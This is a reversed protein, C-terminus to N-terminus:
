GGVVQEREVASWVGDVRAIVPDRMQYVAEFDERCSRWVFKERGDVMMASTGNGNSRMVSASQKAVNPTDKTMSLVSPITACPAPM